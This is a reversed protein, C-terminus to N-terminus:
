GKSVASSIGANPMGTRPSWVLRCGFNAHGPGVEAFNTWASRVLFRKTELANRQPQALKHRKASLLDM